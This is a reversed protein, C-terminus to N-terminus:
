DGQLLEARVNGHKNSAATLNPQVTIPGVDRLAGGGGAYLRLLFRHDIRECHCGSGESNKSNNNEM